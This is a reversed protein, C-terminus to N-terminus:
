HVHAVFSKTLTTGQVTLSIKGRLTKGKATKPLHWVCSAIGNALTHTGRLAKGGVTASCAVTGSAVPGGTDSQTAALSAQFVKGAKAPTVTFATQSLKIKAIVKYNYFGHGIDPAADDHANSFDANGQADVVIGSFALMGFNFGKAGGLDGQSLRITAGTADYSFTLDAQQQAAVYDTGNWHFLDVAGPQLQIAYEAGLSQPDGTAPNQDTDLFLLMLMDSTLAPRNSINIKLTLNGADDNSVVVTTIDPAQADEGTSDQYTQSNAAARSSSGLATTPVAVLAVGLAIAFLLRAKM